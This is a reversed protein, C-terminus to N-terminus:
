ARRRSEISSMVSPPGGILLTFTFSTGEGPKSQVSVQGGQTEVLRKVLALGLGTGGPEGGLHAFRSFVMPLQEESIGEGTDRVSLHVRGGHESAEITVSGGRGTHRIANSLLNDFISAVARRDGVVWPLDPWVNNELRIDKSDAIVQFREAAERALDIPRLRETALRRTGSEIEAIELLDSMLEDLKDAGERASVLLDEQNENLEGAYGEILTHLALKLSHLPERLRSSAVSIFETKLRDLETIATIDELLTVAGVLRGEADRMPTTRLRFDHDAGGVKIPVIAAEGEAAVPRQMAVAERVSSLIREGGKLSSLTLDPDGNGDGSRSAFLQRAARNTKVVHGQADTVIVPEYLSDIAADSKKQEILLRGYDSRRLERLRVLMRNFETALVGIEDRSSVSIHQDFDGEGIQKAKRALESVPDVVHKTFQWAFLLALGLALAAAVGDASAIGGAAIVPLKVARVIQPLLAFTGVQTSVDTGLFIGRHGGAESGQAIIADVGRDQLWLAEDLTTASALVKAGLARVRALLDSAPLGFHFSVVAPRFEALMEAAEATFPARGPGAPISDPDIGYERYYPELLSRWAAEREKAPAPPTHCFFNVNYPKRTGAKLATLEKRMAEASFMACPLSGLGGANSVAVALASAQVGAMPAQVIPLETGLLRALTM